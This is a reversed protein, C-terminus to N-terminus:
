MEDTLCDDALYDVIYIVWLLPRNDQNHQDFPHDNLFIRYGKSLKYLLNDIYQSM